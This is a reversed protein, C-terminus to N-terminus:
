WAVLLCGGLRIEGRERERERERSAGARAVAAAARRLETILAASFDRLAELEAAKEGNLEDIDGCHGLADERDM